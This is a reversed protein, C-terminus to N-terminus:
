TLPKLKFKIDDFSISEVAVVESTSRLGQGVQSVVQSSWNHGATFDVMFRGDGYDFRWHGLGEANKIMADLLQNEDIRVVVNSVDNVVGDFIGYGIIPNEATYIPLNEFWNQPTEPPRM